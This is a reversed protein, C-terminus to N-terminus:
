SSDDDSIHSTLKYCQWSLNDSKERGGEAGRGGERSRDGRGEGRGGEGM